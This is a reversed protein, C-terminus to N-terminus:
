GSGGVPRVAAGLVACPPLRHGGGAGTAPVGCAAVAPAAREPGAAKGAHLLLEASREWDGPGSLREGKGVRKLYYKVKFLIGPLREM